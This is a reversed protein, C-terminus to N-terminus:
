EPTGQVKQELLLLYYERIFFM